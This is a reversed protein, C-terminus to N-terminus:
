EQMSRYKEAHEPDHVPCGWIAGGQRRKVAPNMLCNCDEQGQLPQSWDDRTVDRGAQINVSGEGSVIQQAHRELAQQDQRWAAYGFALLVPVALLFWWVGTVPVMVISLALGSVIVPLVLGFRM